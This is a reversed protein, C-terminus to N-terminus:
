RGVAVKQGKTHGGYQKAYECEVAAAGMSYRGARAVFCEVDVTATGREFWDFYVEVDSDHAALYAGRGGMWRYGSLQSALDFCAPLPSVVKVFDMDRDSTVVHRMRVRDGVNMQEGEGCLTWEGVGGRQVYCERKIVLEGSGYAKLNDETEAFTAYAAGWSLGRSEKEVRLAKVGDAVASNPVNAVVCGELSMNPERGEFAGRSDDVAGRRVDLPKGGDVMVVPVKVERLNDLPEIDMLLQAVEIATIPNDWKQVQKQAVIWLLMDSLFADKGDKRMIAKMAAVQTPIRYDMWSYYAADTAYFRGLGPKEVTYDKLAEVLRDATKVKGCDRLMMSVEAMGYVTLDGVNKEALAAYTSRMKAVEKGAAVDKMRAALSLYRLVDNDLGVVAPHKKDNYRDLMVSDLYAVGHRLMDTVAKSPQPVKALNECVALTVYRNGDMGKFWAWGGDAKVLAALKKEAEAVMNRLSDANEYKEVVPFSRLVDLLSSNAALAVAWSVANDSEPNKVSRLAEVCMWAPGDMYEVALSRSDASPSNGNFLGSLDVDKVVKRGDSEGQIFFPVTETVMRRAPLVPLANREGDGRDGAVLTMECDVDKWDGAVDFHFDVGLTKGAAVAVDCMENLLVSDSAADLLRLRLTGKAAVEGMNVVSAALTVKDGHRVFRPMNPRLMLERRAQVKDILYGYDIDATHALGMFKWETLSEPLTFSIRVDGNSDSVLHPMFFATESFDSRMEVDDHKRTVENEDLAGEGMDITAASMDAMKAMSAAEQRGVAVEALFVGARGNKRYKVFRDHEFPILSAFSRNKVNLREMRGELSFSPADLESAMGYCYGRLNCRSFSPEFRWSHGYIRDLAADYMVAMVEAGDVRKGDKDKVTLTWEERQGPELHNRFTNWELKLRKDPEALTFMTSKCFAKGNRVYMLDVAVGEGWEKKYPLRVHKMSGDTVMAYKDLLGEDGVVNIYLYADTEQTSVYLDVNGDREFTTNSAYVMDSEELGDAKERLKRGSASVKLGVVPLASNYSAVKWETKQMKMTSDASAVELEYEVGPRMTKSLVFKHGSVFAGEGHVQGCYMLRYRSKVEATKGDAGYALVCLSDDKAVDVIHKGEAVAYYGMPNGVYVNWEAEHTEGAVDTVVASVRFVVASEGDAVYQDTLEVPMVFCGEDDTVAEDDDVDVWEANWRMMSRCKIDYQVKAGQVPAGALMQACGKVKVTNGYTGRTDGEMKVEFTPRKYEEVRICSFAVREKERNVCVYVNGVACDAPLAYDFAASGMANTVVNLTDCKDKMQVVVELAVGDASHLVDGNQDYAIVAAKVTQGPRYIGRDTMVGVKLGADAGKGYRGVYAHAYNTFDDESKVAYVADDVCVSGDKDTYLVKAGDPLNGAVKWMDAHGIGKDCVVKVGELPRGTENDAVVYRVMGGNLPSALVRMSSVHFRQVDKEGCAEVVLVYRGVPVTVDTGAEGKVPLGAKKRAESVSDAVLTVTKKEVVDGTLLLEEGGDKMKKVGAYRRVTVEAKDCNWMNVKVGIPRNAVYGGEFGAEARPRLLDQLAQELAAYSKSRAVNAVAWKLFAIKEDALRNERYDYQARDELCGYCKMAVDAGAEADKVEDLLARLSDSYEKDAIGGRSKPLTHMRELWAMKMLAYGNMNGRKRYLDKARRCADVAIESEGFGAAREVYRVMVSLMDKGYLADDDGKDFLCAYDDMKAEALAECDDAVHALHEKAKKAFANKVDADYDAIGSYRMEKYCSALVAHAVGKEVPNKLGAYKKELGDIGKKFNEPDKDSAKQLNEVDAKLQIAFGNSRAYTHQVCTLCAVLAMLAIAFWRKRIM